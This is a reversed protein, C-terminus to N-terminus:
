EARGTMAHYMVSLATRADDVTGDLVGDLLTEFDTTAVQISENDDLEQSGSQECGRAVFYHHVSNAMGNSPEVTTQYELSDAEYGTEERLERAATAELDTDTAPEVGGAPIGRNLHGVAQRWEDIVVVREDPTFPLIVVTGPEDVYHYEGSTGDPFRVSDVRIDFGPCSYDIATGTTEWKLDDPDM